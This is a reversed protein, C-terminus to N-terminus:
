VKALYYLSPFKGMELSAIRLPSVETSFSEGGTSTPVWPFAKALVKAILANRFNQETGVLQLRINKNSGSIRSGCEVRV